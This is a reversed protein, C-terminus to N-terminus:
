CVAVRSEGHVEEEADVELGDEAVMDVEVMDVEVVMDVEAGSDGAEGVMAEETMGVVEVGAEALDEVVGAVVVEEIELSNLM